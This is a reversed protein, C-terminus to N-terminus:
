AARNASKRSAPKRRTAGFRGTRASRSSILVAHYDELAARATTAIFGSRSMGQETATADIADILFEDLTINIRKARGKILPAPVLAAVAGKNHKDRMVTELSTPDPIIERDEVMSEIHAALAGAANELAEDLTEGGSVCGPFDPFDVGYSTGEEKRILALYEAM